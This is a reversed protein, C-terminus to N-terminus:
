PSHKAHGHVADIGWIIPIAYKLREDISANYFKDFSWKVVRMQKLM